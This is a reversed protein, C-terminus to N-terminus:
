SLVKISGSINLKGWRHMEAVLPHRLDTTGFVKVAAERADWEYVEEIKMLALAENKLNRLAVEAGELIKEDPEVSLTIPIPFVHGNSLRMEDMVRLYDAGLMFRDLPSFAGTALMELDCLARESLRLSHLSNARARLDAIEEPPALLNVLTGGCPPILNSEKIKTAM